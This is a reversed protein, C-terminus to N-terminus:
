DKTVLFHGIGSIGSHNLKIRDEVLLSTLDTNEFNTSASAAWYVIHFTDYGIERLRSMNIVVEEVTGESRDTFAEFLINGAADLVFVRLSQKEIPQGLEIVVFDDSLLASDNGAYIDIGSDDINNDSDNIIVKFSTIGGDTFVFYESVSARFPINLLAGERTIILEGNEWRYHAGQVLEVGDKLVKTVETVSNALKVTVQEGSEEGVSLDLNFLAQGEDRLVFNVDGIKSIVLQNHIPQSQTLVLTTYSINYQNEIRITYTGPGLRQMLEYDLTIGTAYKGTRPAETMDFMGFLLSVIFTNRGEGDNLRFQVDGALSSNGSGRNLGIVQKGSTDFIQMIQGSAFTSASFHRGEDSVWGLPIDFINELLEGLELDPMFSQLLGIVLDFIGQIDMDLGMEDLDIELGLMDLIDTLFSLDLDFELDGLDLNYDEDFFERLYDGVIGIDYATTGQDFVFVDRLFGLTLTGSSINAEFQDSAWRVAQEHNADYVRVADPSLTGNRALGTYVRVYYSNPATINVDSAMVSAPITLLTRGTSSDYSMKFGDNENYRIIPSAYDANEFRIGTISEGMSSLEVIIDNYDQHQAAKNTYPTLLRRVRTNSAYETIVLTTTIDLGDANTIRVEFNGVGYEDGLTSRLLTDSIVIMETNFPGLTIGNHFTIRVNNTSIGEWMEVVFDLRQDDNLIVISTGVGATMRNVDQTVLIVWKETTIYLTNSGNRFQTGEIRLINGSVEFRLETREGSSSLLEAKTVNNGALQGVGSLRYEVFRTQTSYGVSGPTVSPVYGDIRGQLLLNFTSVVTGDKVLNLTYRGFDTIGNAALAAFSVIFSNSAEDYFKEVPQGNYEITHGTLSIDQRGRLASSLRIGNVSTGGADLWNEEGLTVVNQKVITAVKTGAPTMASIRMNINQSNLEDVRILNAETLAKDPSFLMTIHFGQDLNRAGDGMLDMASIADSIRAFDQRSYDALSSNTFSIHNTIATKDGAVVSIGPINILYTGNPQAYKVIDNNNGDFINKRNKDFMYNLVTPVNANITSNMIIAEGENAPNKMAPFQVQNSKIWTYFYNETGEVEMLTGSQSPMTLLPSVSIDHYINNRTIVFNGFRKGQPHAVATQGLNNYEAIDAGNENDEGNIGGGYANGLVGTFGAFRLVCTDIELPSDSNPAFTAGFLTLGKELISNQIRIGATYLGEIPRGNVHANGQSFTRDKGAMNSTGLVGIKHFRYLKIEENGQPINEGTLTLNDVLSNNALAYFAYVEGWGYGNFFMKQDFGLSTPSANTGNDTGRMSHANRYVGQYAYNGTKGDVGRTYTSADLQFGNGYVDGFFWTSEAWTYMTRSKQAEQKDKVTQRIVLDSYRFSPAWLEFESFFYGYRDGAGNILGETGYDTRTKVFHDSLLGSPSSGPVIFDSLTKGSVNPRNKTNQTGNNYSVGQTIYEYRALKEVLKIEEYSYVNVADVIEYVYEYRAKLNGRYPKESEAVFRVIGPNKFNITVMRPNLRDHVLEAVDTGEITELRADIIVESGRYTWGLEFTDGSLKKLNVSQYNEPTVEAPAEIDYLGFVRNQALGRSAYLNDYATLQTSTITDFYEPGYDTVRVEFPLEITGKNVQITAKFMTSARDTNFKSDIGRVTYRTIPESSEEVLSAVAYNELENTEHRWEVSGDWSPDGTLVQPLAFTAGSSISAINRPDVPRSLSYTYVPDRPKTTVVIVPIIVALALIISVIVATIKQYYTKILKM